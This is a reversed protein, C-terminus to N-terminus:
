GGRTTKSKSLTVKGFTMFVLTSDMPGRYGGQAGALKCAVATFEWAEGESCHLKRTTLKEIGNQEGYDRVLAAHEQLAPEVSPHDWGWLWTNDDTNYTGIIQVPCTATIGGPATFVIQGTSQDVDWDAKGLHWTGDHAETKARLEEMSQALLTRFDPAPPVSPIEIPQGCGPCKARKGAHARSVSVPKQCHPCRFRIKDDTTM